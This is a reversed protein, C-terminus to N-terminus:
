RERRQTSALSTRSGVLFSEFSLALSEIREVFPEKPNPPVDPLLLVIVGSYDLQVVSTVLTFGRTTCLVVLPALAAGVFFPLVKKRKKLREEPHVSSCPRFPRAITKEQANATLLRLSLPRHSLPRLSSQM